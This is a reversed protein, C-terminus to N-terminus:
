KTSYWISESNRYRLLFSEGPAITLTTNSGNRCSAIILNDASDKDNSVWLMQGDTPSTLTLTAQATVLVIITNKGSVSQSANGDMNLEVEGDLMISGTHTKNGSITESGTKSVYDDALNNDWWTQLYTSGGFSLGGSGDNLLFGNADAPKVIYGKGEVWTQSAVKRINAGEYYKIWTSDFYIDGSGPFAQAESPLRLTGGSFNIHGTFTKNGAFTQTGTSVMGPYSADATQAYINAGSIVLGNASKTAGNITQVTTVGSAGTGAVWSLNGSGDNQLYTSAAGQTTPFTTSVGPLNIIVDAAPNGVNIFVGYDNHENWMVLQGDLGGYTNRRGLYVSSLSTITNTFIHAGTWIYAKSTDVGGADVWDLQGGTTNTCGLVKGATPAASYPFSVTWGNLKVINGAADVKFQDPAGPSGNNVNFGNTSLVTSGGYPAVFKWAGTVTYNATTDFSGGSAVKWKGNSYLVKTSDNRPIPKITKGGWKLIDGYPSVHFNFNVSSTDAIILTSDGVSLGGRSRMFTSATSSNYTIDNFWIDGKGNRAAITSPTALSTFPLGTKLKSTSGDWLPIYNDILTLPPRVYATDLYYSRFDSLTIKYTTTPSETIFLYNSGLTPAAPLSAIFIDQAVCKTIVFFMILLVFIKKM